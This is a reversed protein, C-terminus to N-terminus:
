QNLAFALITEKLDANSCRVLVLRSLDNPKIQGLLRIASAPEQVQDRCQVAQAPCSRDVDNIFYVTAKM